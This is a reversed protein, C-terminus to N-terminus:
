RWFVLFENPFWPCHKLVCLAQILNLFSIMFGGNGVMGWWEWGNGVMGWWEGGNGVMGWWEGGNGVMGLWEWGNGVMGLWEGGNGVMGWWEGGNEVMKGNEAIDRLTVGPCEHFVTM